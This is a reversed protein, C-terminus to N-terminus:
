LGSRGARLVSAKGTGWVSESSGSRQVKTELELMEVCM